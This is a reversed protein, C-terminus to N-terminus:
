LMKHERFWTIADRIADELPSTQYGIEKRAKDSSYISGPHYAYDITVSNILAERKTIAQQLDGFWGVLKAIPRPIRRTPVRIGAVKAILAFIEAYSLNEGGLIYCEGRRGKESAAIMGRCVDRVDVYNNMGPTVGPLGKRLLDLIMKGSSPKADYPGFMYAPNVIVADVDRAAAELVLNQSQRKTLAYGDIMHVEERNWPMEETVLRGDTSIALAVVTSCHVLRPVGAKRIAELVHTTGQVNTQLSARDPKRLFSIVAACHFVVDAGEFARLLSAPDTVDAEVWEVPLSSLHQIKSTSRKLGVAQYGCTQLEKLLNAGVLGSAGTVVARM